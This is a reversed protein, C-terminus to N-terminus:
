HDRRPRHELMLGDLRQCGHCADHLLRRGRQGVLGNACQRRGRDHAPQGLPAARDLAEALRHQQLHRGAQALIVQNRGQLRQEVMVVCQPQPHDTGCPVRFPAQLHRGGPATCARAVAQTAISM